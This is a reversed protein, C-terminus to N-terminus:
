NRKKGHLIEEAEEIEEIDLERIEQWETNDNLIFRRFGKRDFWCWIQFLDSPSGYKESFKKIDIKLKKGPLRNTKCQILYTRGRHKSIVDFLGFFDKKNWKSRIVKLVVYNLSLFYDACKKEIRAGKDSSNVKKKEDSM